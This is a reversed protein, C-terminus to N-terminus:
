QWIYVFLYNGFALEWWMCSETWQGEYERTYVLSQYHGCFTKPLGQDRGNMCLRYSSDPRGSLAMGWVFGSCRCFAAHCGRTFWSDCLSHHKQQARSVEDARQWVSCERGENELGLEYPGLIGLLDLGQSGWWEGYSRKEPVTVNRYWHWKAACSIPSQQPASGQGFPCLSLSVVVTVVKQDMERKSMINICKGCSSFPFFFRVSVCWNEKPFASTSSYGSM